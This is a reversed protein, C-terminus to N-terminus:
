DKIESQYKEECKECKVHVWGQDYIKGPEGCTECTIASEEIADEILEVINERNEDQTYYRLTGFKEKVQVVKGTYGALVIKQSLRYVIGFWGDSLYFNFDKRYLTPFDSIMIKTNEENM